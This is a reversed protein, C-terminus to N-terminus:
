DDFIFNITFFNKAIVNIPCVTVATSLALCKQVSFISQLWSNSVLASCSHFEYSIVLNDHSNGNRTRTNYLISM